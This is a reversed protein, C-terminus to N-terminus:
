NGSVKARIAGSLSSEEIRAEPAFARVLAEVCTSGGQTILPGTRVVLSRLAEDSFPVDVYRIGPDVNNIFSNSMHQGVQSSFEATGPGGDPLPLSPLIFLSFRYEKQFEWDRSKKRPLYPLANIKLNVNGEPNVKRQISNAYEEEVNDVYEVPGAFQERNLFMPAIFYGNGWIAEFSLPSLIEGSWIVGEWGPKPRLPQDTFPYSPMEIRVGQMEHSYMSWQPISEEEQQTWCSVFFFKGFDIEAHRQAEKVDDVGDLRSFRLKRTKLILALSEISTYHYIRSM